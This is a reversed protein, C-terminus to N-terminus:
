RSTLRLRSDILSILEFIVLFCNIDINFDILFAGFLDWEYCVAFGVSIM